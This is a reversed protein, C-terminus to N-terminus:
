CRRQYPDHWDEPDPEYVTIIWLIGDQYGCVIHTYKIERSKGSVLFSYGRPDDPYHEIIKGNLIAEKVDLPDIGREAAREAAHKRFQYNGSDVLRAILNDDMKTTM